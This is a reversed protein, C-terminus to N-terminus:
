KTSPTYSRWREQLYAKNEEFEVGQASITGARGVDTLGDVEPWFGALRGLFLPYLSDVITDPDLEGKNYVVGYDYVVRAWLDAPFYFQELPQAALSEIEALNEPLLIKQWLLRYEMWGLALAEIDDLPDYCAPPLHETNAAFETLTPLPQVCTIAPWKQRNIHLQRLMVGISERFSTLTQSLHKRYHYRKTGLAAQALRWNNAAAFTSLWIDFGARSVETEWVDQKLAARALTPSIAYDKANPQQLNVGWISRTFPYYLLDSLANDLLPRNYRPKVLDAQNRLIFTALGPIWGPRITQTRSDLVIIAQAQLQLAAHFIASVASGRGLVGTYRGSIVPMKASIATQIAQRTQRNAGTDVHILVTRLHPFFTKAGALAQRAVHLAIKPRVLHTPLGIVLDAQGIQNLKNLASDRLTSPAVSVLNDGPLYLSYIMSM